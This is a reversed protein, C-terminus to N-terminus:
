CDIELEELLTKFMDGILEKDVEHEPSPMRIELIEKSYGIRAARHDDLEELIAEFEQWTVDKIVLRQGPPVSLQRLQLAVM